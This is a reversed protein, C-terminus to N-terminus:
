FARFPVEINWPTSDSRARARATLPLKARHNELSADDSPLEANAPWLSDSHYDADLWDVAEAMTRFVKGTLGGEKSLAEWMRSLEFVVDKPAVVAARSEDHLHAHEVDHEVLKEIGTLDAIPIAMARYDCLLEFGNEWSPDSLVKADTEVLEEASVAGSARIYVLRHESFFRYRVTM